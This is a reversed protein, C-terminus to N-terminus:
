TTLLALQNDFWEAFSLYPVVSGIVEVQDLYNSYENWLIAMEENNNRQKEEETEESWGATNWVDPYDDDLYNYNNYTKWFNYNHYVEQFDYYTNNDQMLIQIVKDITANMQELNIFEKTTHENYYGISLNVGAVDWEPCLVSIDSFSGIEETFGFPLIYDVFDRNGCDYFVADTSGRRDLQIMFNINPFDLVEAAVRAGVGGIEEDELFLIHPQKGCIKMTEIIRLISYVGARDDGGIGEPSWAVKRQSDYFIDVPQTKHVTDLHAVLMVPINGEAYIHKRGQHVYSYKQGKLHKILYGYLSSQDFKLIKRFLKDM